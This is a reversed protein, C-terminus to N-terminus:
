GVRGLSILARSDELEDSPVEGAENAEAEIEHEVEAAGDSDQPRPHDRKGLSISSMLTCPKDPARIWIPM